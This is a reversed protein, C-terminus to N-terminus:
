GDGMLGWSDKDYTQRVVKWHGETVHERVSDMRYDPEIDGDSLLRHVCTDENFNPAVVFMTVVFSALASRWSIGYASARDIGTQVLTELTGGALAAVPLEGDSLRVVTNGHRSRLYAALQEIFATKVTRDFLSIQDERIVM